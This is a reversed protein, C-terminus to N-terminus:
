SDRPVHPRGPDAFSGMDRANAFSTKVVLGSSHPKCIYIYVCIFRGCAPFTKLLLGGPVHNIYIHSDGVDEKGM